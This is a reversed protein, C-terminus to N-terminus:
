FHVISNTATKICLPSVRSHCYTEKYLCSAQESKKTIPHKLPSFFHKAKTKM